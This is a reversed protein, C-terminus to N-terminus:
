PVIDRLEDLYPQVKDAAGPDLELYTEFHGLAEGFRDLQLYTLALYWHAWPLGPELALADEYATAALQPQGLNNRALGLYFYADTQASEQTIAQEAEAIAEDWAQKEVAAQAQLLHSVAGQRQYYTVAAIGAALVVLALVLVLGTRKPGHREVVRLAISDVQYQPTLFWGLVFGSVLGGLHAM